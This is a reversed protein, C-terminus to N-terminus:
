PVLGYSECLISGASVRCKEPIYPKSIVAIEQGILKGGLTRLKSDIFVASLGM